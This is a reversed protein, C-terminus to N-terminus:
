QSPPEPHKLLDASLVESSSVLESCLASLSKTLDECVIVQLRSFEAMLTHIAGQEVEHMGGMEHIMQLCLAHIRKIVHLATELDRDGQGTTETPSYVQSSGAMAQPAEEPVPTEKSSAEVGASERGPDQEVRKAAHWQKYAEMTTSLVLDSEINWHEGSPPRLTISMKLGHRMNLSFKEQEYELM